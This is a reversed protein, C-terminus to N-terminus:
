LREIKITNSKWTRGTADTVVFKVKLPFSLKEKKATEKLVLIPFWFACNEGSKVICPLGKESETYTYAFLKKKGLKPFYFSILSVKVDRLGPNSVVIFAFPGRKNPVIKQSSISVIDRISASVKLSIKRNKDRTIFDFLSRVADMALKLLTIGFFQSM